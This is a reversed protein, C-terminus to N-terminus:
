PRGPSRASGPSAGGCELVCDRRVEVTAFPKGLRVVVGPVGGDRVILNSGLGLAMVPTGSDLRGLFQVLDDLDAPEFLWDAPGGSKFWVLKDLPADQTLKGRVNTPVWGDFAYDSDSGPADFPGQYSGPQRTM